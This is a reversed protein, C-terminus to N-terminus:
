THINTEDEYVIPRGESRYKRLEMLYTERLSRISHKEILVGRNTRTKKWRFGLNKIITRLSSVSGTFDNKERLKQVLRKLTPVSQEVAYFNHITRRILGSDFDDIDTIRKPVNHKKGPTGSSTGEEVQKKRDQLIRYVSSQSVGTAAAVRKQVKKVDKYFAPSFSDKQQAEERFYDYVNSIIERSQSHLTKGKLKSLIPPM